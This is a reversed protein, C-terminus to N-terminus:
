DPLRYKKFFKWILESASIERIIPGVIDKWKKCLLGNPQTHCVEIAYDGGPWTHGSGQIPCLTVEVGEPCELYTRCTVPGKNYIVKTTMACGYREAWDRVSDEISTCPWTKREMPLWLPWSKPWNAPWATACRPGNSHGTAYVRRRDVHYEAIMFDILQSVFGVDDINNEMAYACCTGANWTLLRDANPGSGAPYVAIFGQGEATRDM